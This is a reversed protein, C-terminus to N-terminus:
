NTMTLQRLFRTFLAWCSHHRSQRRLSSRSCSRSSLPKRIKDLPLAGIHQQAHIEYVRISRCESAANIWCNSVVQMEYWTRYATDFTPVHSTQQTDVDRAKIQQELAIVSDFKLLAVRLSEVTCDKAKILRGSDIAIALAMAMAM